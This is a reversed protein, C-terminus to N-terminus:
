TGGGKWSSAGISPVTLHDEYERIVFDLFDMHGFFVPAASRIFVDETIQRDADYEMICTETSLIIVPSVFCALDHSSATFTELLRRDSGYLISEYGDNAKAKFLQPFTYAGMLPVLFVRPLFHGESMLASTIISTEHQFIKEKIREETTKTTSNSEKPLTYYVEYTISVRTGKTVPLVKHPSCSSFLVVKTGYNSSISMTEDGERIVLEGGTYNSVCEISPLIVLTGILNEHPTDVHEDFHGNERYMNFKKFKLTVESAIRTGWRNVLVKQITRGIGPSELFGSVTVSSPMERADRVDKDVRTSHSKLDGFGSPVCMDWLRDLLENFAAKPNTGTGWRMTRKRTERDIVLEKDIRLM